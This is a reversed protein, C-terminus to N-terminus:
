SYFVKLRTKAYNFAKKLTGLNLESVDINLEQSKSTRMFQEADASCANEALQRCLSKLYMSKCSDDCISFSYVKDKTSFLAFARPGDEIDCVAVISNLALLKVHKYPKQATAVHRGVATLATTHHSTPSKASNFRSKKIKCVEMYDTFLFLM